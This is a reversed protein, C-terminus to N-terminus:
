VSRLIDKVNEPIKSGCHTCYNANKLLEGHCNYCSSPNRKIYYEACLEDLRKEIDFLPNKKIETIIKNCINVADAASINNDKLYKNFDYKFDSRSGKFGTLEELENLALQIENDRMM